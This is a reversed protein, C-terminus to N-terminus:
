ITQNTRAIIEQLAGWLKKKDQVSNHIHEISAVCLFAQNNMYMVEYLNGQYQLGIDKPRLGFLIVLSLKPESQSLSRPLDSPEFFSIQADKWPTKAFIKDIFSSFEYLTSKKRAIANVDSLSHATSNDQWDIRDGIFYRKVNM